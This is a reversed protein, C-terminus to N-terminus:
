MGVCFHPPIGIFAIYQILILAFIFWQFIPWIQKQKERTVGFLVCLWVSYILAIVDMLTGILIVLM